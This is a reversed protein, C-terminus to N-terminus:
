ICSMKTQLTLRQCDWPRGFLLSTPRLRPRQQVCRQQVIHSCARVLRGITPQVGCVLSDILGTYPARVGSRAVVTSCGGEFQIKAHVVASSAVAGSILDPYQARM